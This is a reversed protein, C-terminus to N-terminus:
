AVRYTSVKTVAFTVQHCHTTYPYQGHRLLVHCPNNNAGLESNRTQRVPKDFKSIQFKQSPRDREYRQIISKM